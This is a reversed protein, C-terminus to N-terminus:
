VGLRVDDNHHDVRVRDAAARMRELVPEMAVVRGAAIDRRSRQLMARISAEDRVPPLEDDFRPDQSGDM